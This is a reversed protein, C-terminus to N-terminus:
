RALTVMDSYLRELIEDADKGQSFGKQVVRIQPFSADVGNVEIYDKAVDCALKAHFVYQEGLFSEVRDFQDLMKVNAIGKGSLFGVGINLYEDSGLTHCWQILFWGGKILDIESEKTNLIEDIDM